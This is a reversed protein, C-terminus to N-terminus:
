HRAHFLGRQEEGKGGKGQDGSGEEGFRKFDAGVGRLHLGNILLSMGDIEGLFEGGAEGENIEIGLGVSGAARFLGAIEAVGKFVHFFGPDLDEADGGVSGFVLEGERFFEM